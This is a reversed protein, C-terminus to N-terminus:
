DKFLSSRKTLDQILKEDEESELLTNYNNWFDKNYPKIAFINSDWDNKLKTDIAEPDLIVETFLIEQITKYFREDKARQEAEPDDTKPVKAGVNVLKPTEYSVYNVYMKSDYEMYTIELKHNVQTDFLIKSRNKQAESSAILEYEIKKVAYTDWYVYLWGNAVYGDNFIGPTELNIYDEGELIKIKYIKRENDVLVTDLKFQHYDLVHKGFLARESKTNRLLNLKGEFLNELGNTRTDNWKIAKVLAATKITDRKLNKARLNKNGHQKLYATYALLSDVDRLDYSKRMEDVNIKLNKYAPSQASSDYLTIASEILWKFEKKNQEKHRLFGKELFPLEPLNDPLKSIMKLVIDNGTKPRPEGVLLVEDLSAIDEELFIEETNNFEKVPIKYSKYGISSIVLTDNQMANPVLLVFKGDANSITGTTTNQVYISASEIPIMTSFDVIKNKLETQAYVTGFFLCVLITLSYTKNIFNM